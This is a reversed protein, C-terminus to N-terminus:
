ITRDPERYLSYPGSVKVCTSILIYAWFWWGAGLLALTLFYSTWKLRTAGAFLLFAALAAGTALDFNIVQSFINGLHVGAFILPIFEGGWFGLTVSILTVFLKSIVDSWNASLSELDAFSQIGLSQFKRLFPQSLFAALVIAVFFKVYWDSSTFFHKLQRYAWKYVKMMWGATFGLVIVFFLKQLFPPDYTANFKLFLHNTGLTELVLFAALSGMLAYIKQKLGTSFLEMILVLSIWPVGVIASFGIGAAIPGWFSWSLRFIRVFGSAMLIAAGERGVSAGVLHSLLTGALHFFTMWINWHHALEQKPETVQSVQHPFYLTRKKLEILFILCFPLAVLHLPVSLQNWIQHQYEIWQLSRLFVYVLLGVAIGLLLTIIIEKFSNDAPRNISTQM